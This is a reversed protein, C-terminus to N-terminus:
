KKPQKAGFNKRIDIGLETKALDAMTEWAFSRMQEYELKKKLEANQKKLETFEKQEQETMDPIILEEALESSYQHAWRSITQPPIQYRAALQYLSQDGNAYEMGIKRRLAVDHNPRGRQGKRGMSGQRNEM